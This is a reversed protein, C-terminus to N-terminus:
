RNVSDTSVWSVGSRRSLTPHPSNFVPLNRNSKEEGWGEGDPSPASHDVIYLILAFGGKREMLLIDYFDFVIGEGEPLLNPHPDIFCYNILKVGRM